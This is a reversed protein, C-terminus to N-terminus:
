FDNATIRQQELNGDVVGRLIISHGLVRNGSRSFALTEIEEDSNPRKRRLQFYSTSPGFLLTEGYWADGTAVKVRYTGIPVVTEFTQGSSLYIFLEESGSQVNVLKIAYNSLSGAEIKLPAIAPGKKKRIIGTNILVRKLELQAPLPPVSRQPITDVRSPPPIASVRGSLTPLPPQPAPTLNPSHTVSVRPTSPLITVTSPAFSYHAAVAGIGVFSILLLWIWKKHVASIPHLGSSQPIILRNGCKGCSFYGSRGAQDKLRNWRGCKCIVIHETAM